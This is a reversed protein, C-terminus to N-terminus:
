DDGSEDEHHDFDAIGRKWYGDVSIQRKPIGLERRLHRRIPAMAGAEGAAFVFLQARDPLELARLATELRSQDGAAVRGGARHVWHVVDGPRAGLDQEEAADEVEILATVRSGEPAEELIRSIAPLATEDGLALYSAYDEPLLWNARPGIVVLPDGPRADRAWRGAIGHDHLVFDLTLERAEPDWARPTYDRRIPEGEGDIEWDDEEGTRRYATIRGTAPDPFYAKVHDGPAFAPLPYGRELDEGGLVVRRYRPTVDEVRIVRLDRRELPEVFHLQLEGTRNPGTFTPLERTTM